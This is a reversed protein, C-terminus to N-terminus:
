TSKDGFSKGTWPALAKFRKRGIVGYVVFAVGLLLIWVKHVIQWVGASQVPELLVLISFAIFALGVILGTIRLVIEM